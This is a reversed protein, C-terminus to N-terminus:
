RLWMERRMRRVERGKVTSQIGLRAGENIEVRKRQETKLKERKVADKGENQFYVWPDKFYIM